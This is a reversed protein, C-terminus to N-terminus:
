ARELSTNAMKGEYAMGNAAISSMPAAAQHMSSPEIKAITPHPTATAVNAVSPAPHNSAVSTAPGANAATKAKTLSAAAAKNAEYKASAESVIATFAANDNLLKASAAVTPYREAILSACPLALHNLYGGQAAMAPMAAIINRIADVKAAPDAALEGSEMKQLTAYGNLVANDPVIMSGTMALGMQAAIPGASAAMNMGVPAAQGVMLFGSASTMAAGIKSFFSRSSAKKSAALVVPHDAGLQAKMDGLLQKAEGTEKRSTLFASATGAIAAGGVAVTLLKANGLRPGLSKFASAFGGTVAEKAYHANRASKAAKGVTHLVGEAHSVLDAKGMKSAKESVAEITSVAKALADVRAQGKLSHAAQVQSLAGSLESPMRMPEPKKRFVKGWFGVSTQSFAAKAESLRTVVKTSHAEHRWNFFPALGRNILKGLGSNGVTDAAGGLGRGVSGFFKGAAQEAPRLRDNMRTAAADLSKAAGEIKAGKAEAAIHSAGRLVHGPAQFFQRLSLKSITKTPAETLMKAGAEVTKAKLKGALWGVIGFVPLPIPGMGPITFWGISWVSMLGENAKDLGKIVRDQTTAQHTVPRLKASLNRGTQTASFAQPRDFAQPTFDKDM